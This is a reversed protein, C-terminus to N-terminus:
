LHIKLFYSTPYPSSQAPEPYLCTAPVQSHPLSDEPNMFYPSNRSKSCIKYSRWFSQAGCFLYNLLYTHIYTLLYTLLYTHNQPVLYLHAGTNVSETDATLRTGFFIPFNFNMRKFFGALRSRATVHHFGAAWVQGTNSERKGASSAEM